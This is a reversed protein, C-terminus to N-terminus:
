KNVVKSLENNVLPEEVAEVMRLLLEAVLILLLEEGIEGVVVRLLKTVLLLPGKDIM